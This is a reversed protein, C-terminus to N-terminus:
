SPIRRCVANYVPSEVVSGTTVTAKFTYRQGITCATSVSTKNDWSPIYVGNLSWRVSDAPPGYLECAINGYGSECGVVHTAAQAPAAGVLAAGFAALAVGARLVASSTRM